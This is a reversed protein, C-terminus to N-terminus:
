AAFGASERLQRMSELFSAIQNWSPICKPATVPTNTPRAANGRFANSTVTSVSTLQVAHAAAPPM